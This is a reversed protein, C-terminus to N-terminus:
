KCCDDIPNNLNEGSKSAIETLDLVFACRDRAGYNDM